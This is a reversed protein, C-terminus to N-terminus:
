ALHMRFIERNLQIVHPGIELEQLDSIGAFVEGADVIHCGHNGSLPVVMGASRITVPELSIPFREDNARIDLMALLDIRPQPLHRTARVEQDIVRLVGGLFQLFVASPSVAAEILRHLKRFHSTHLAQGERMMVGFVVVIKEVADFFQTSFPERVRYNGAFSHFDRDPLCGSARLNRIRSFVARKPAMASATSNMQTLTTPMKPAHNTLRLALSTASFPNPTISIPTPTTSAPTPRTSSRIAVLRVSTRCAASVMLVTPACATDFLGTSLASFSRKSVLRAGRMACIRSLRAGTRPATEFISLATLKRLEKGMSASRAGRSAVKSSLKSRSSASEASAVCSRLVRRSSAFARVVPMAGSVTAVSLASASRMSLRSPCTCAFTCDTRASTSANFTRISFFFDRSSKTKLRIASSEVSISAQTM